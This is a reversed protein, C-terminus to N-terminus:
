WKSRRLLVAGDLQLCPAYGKFRKSTSRCFSPAYKGIPQRDGSPESFVRRRFVLWAAPGYGQADRREQRDNGGFRYGQLGVKTPAALRCDTMLRRRPCLVIVVGVVVACVCWHSVFVDMPGFWDEPCKTQLIVDLFGSNAKRCAPKVFEDCLQYMTMDAPVRWAELVALLFSHSVGERQSVPLSSWPLRNEGSHHEPVVTAFPALGAPQVTIPRVSAGIAQQPAVSASRGRKGGDGGEQVLPAQGEGILFRLRKIGPRLEEAGRCKAIVKKLATQLGLASQQIPGPPAETAAFSDIQLLSNVMVLLYASPFVIVYGTPHFVFEAGVALVNSLLLMLCGSALVRRM